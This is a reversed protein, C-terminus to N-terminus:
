WASHYDDDDYTSDDEIEVKKLEYPIPPGFLEELPDIRFSKQVVADVKKQANHQAMLKATLSTIEKKSAIESKKFAESKEVKCAKEAEYTELYGRVVENARDDLCFMFWQSDPKGLLVNEICFDLVQHMYAINHFERVQSHPMCNRTYEVLEKNESYFIHGKGINIVVSYNSEKEQSTLICDQIHIDVQKGIYNTNGSLITVGCMASMVNDIIGMSGVLSEYGLVKAFGDGIIVYMDKAHLNMRKGGLVNIYCRHNICQNFINYIYHISHLRVHQLGNFKGGIEEQSPSAKQYSLTKM